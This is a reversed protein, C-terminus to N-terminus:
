RLTAAAAWVSCAGCYYNKKFITEALKQGSINEASPWDGRSWNKIPMDGMKEAAAAGGATGLLTMGKMKELMVPVVIKQKEALSAPDALEIERKGRVAVCKLNKSGMVAGLGCRGAMRANKGDHAVCSILLRKEGAPGISSTECYRGFREKMHGDVYFTDRGWLNVASEFSIEDDIILINVPEEAAGKVVLGDWGTKKITLGFRGGVDGEAYIGTLPSKSIIEHRGSMPIRTATFPGTMWIIVNDPGLPDTEPGRMDFLLRAGVGSGGLYKIYLSEEPEFTKFTKESLDAILIKGCYGCVSKAM